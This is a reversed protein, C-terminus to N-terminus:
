APPQIDFMNLTAAVFTYYGVISVVEVMTREGLSAKFNTYQSDSAVGNQKLVLWTFDHLAADKEPFQLNAVAEFKPRTGAALHAIIDEELGAKRAEKVHIAWETPSRCYSATMLIVLESERLELTTEYRCIRGLKQAVDALAPNILWPGFPGAVGTTRTRAIEDYVERQAPTMEAETPGKYRSLPATEQKATNNTFSQIPGIRRRLMQKQGLCVEKTLAKFQSTRYCRLFLM